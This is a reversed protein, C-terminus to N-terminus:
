PRPRAAAGLLLAAFFGGGSCAVLVWGVARAVFVDSTLASYLGALMMVLACAMALRSSRRIRRRDGETYDRRASGDRDTLGLRVMVGDLWSM